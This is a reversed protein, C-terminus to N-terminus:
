DTALTNSSRPNCPNCQIYRTSHLQTSLTHKKSFRKKKLCFVAYSTRMLSQLESTHDESREKWRRRDAAPWHRPDARNAGAPSRLGQIPAGPLGIPARSSRTPSSATARRSPASAAARGPREVQVATPIAAVGANARRHPQLQMAVEAEVCGTCLNRIEGREADAVNVERRDQGCAAARHVAIVDDIM